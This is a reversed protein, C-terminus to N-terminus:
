KILLNGIAIFRGQWALATLLRRVLDGGGQDIVFATM